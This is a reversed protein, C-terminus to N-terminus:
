GVVVFLFLFLKLKLKRLDFKLDGQTRGLGGLDEWTRGPGRLDEWTRRLGGLYDSERPDEWTRGVDVFLFSFLKLKLKRLDFKLDGQTRGLGGL